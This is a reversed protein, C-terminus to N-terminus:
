AFIVNGFDVFLLSMNNNDQGLINVGVNAGGDFTGIVNNSDAQVYNGGTGDSFNFLGGTVATDRQFFADNGGNGQVFLSSLATTPSTATTFLVSLIDGSANGQQVVYNTATISGIAVTSDWAYGSAPSGFGPAGPPAPSFVPDVNYSGMFIFDSSNGAVDQQLLTVTGPTSGVGPIFPAGPVNLSELFAFANPDVQVLAIIDGAANGQTINLQELLANRFGDTPAVVGLDNAFPPSATQVIEERGGVGNPMSVKTTTPADLGASGFLPIFVLTGSVVTPDGPPINNTRVGGVQDGSANNSLDQQLLSVVGASLNDVGIYDDSGVGQALLVPGNWIGSNVGGPPTVTSGVTDGQGLFIGDSNGNGQTSSLSVRIQTRNITTNDVRGNGQTTKVVGMISSITTFTDGIWTGNNDYRPNISLLKDISIIDSSGNNQALNVQGNATVGWLRIKDGGGSNEQINVSAVMADLIDVEENGTSNVNAAKFNVANLVNNVESTFAGGATGMILTDNGSGVTVNLTTGPLNIIGTPTGVIITENDNLVTVNIATIAGPFATTFTVANMGNVTTEFGGAVTVMSTPGGTTAGTNGSIILTSGPGNSPSNASFVEQINLIATNPVFGAFVVATPVRRDELTELLLRASPKKAKPSRLKKSVFKSFSRM